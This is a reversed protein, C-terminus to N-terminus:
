LLIKHTRKSHKVVNNEMFSFFCLRKMNIRPIGFFDTTLSFYSFRLKTTNLHIVVKLTQM